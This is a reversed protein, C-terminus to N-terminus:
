AAGQEGYVSAVRVVADLQGARLAELPTRANLRDNANAFFLLQTWLDHAGLAELVEKLGTLTEGREFQFAPYAYSRREQPLGMLRNLRRRKGVAQRKIGLLDAVEKATLTCGLQEILHRKAELGRLKASALPAASGLETIEPFGPLMFYRADSDLIHIPEIEDVSL